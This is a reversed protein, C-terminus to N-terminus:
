PNWGPDAPIHTRPSAIVWIDLGLHDSLHSSVSGGRSFPRRRVRSLDLVFPHEAKPRQVFIFDIRESTGPQKPEGCFKADATECVTEPHTTDGRPKPKKLMPRTHQHWYPWLDILEVSWARKTLEEYVGPTNANINFDGVLMAVHNAQHTDKIYAVVDDVQQLQIELRQAPTLKPFLGALTLQFPDAPDFELIGGGNFLHTSYLEVRWGQGLELVTRLMGKRSWADADRLPDGQFGFEKRQSSVLRGEFAVSMLGSGALDGDAQTGKAVGLARGSAGAQKQVDDQREPEFVECLAAIEYEAGLMTGIEKAREPRGPANGTTYFSATLSPINLQKAIFALALECFKLLIELPDIGLKDLIDEVSLSFRRVIDRASIKGLIDSLSVTGGTLFSIIDDVVDSFKDKLESLSYGFAGPAIGLRAVVEEPDLALDLVLTRPDLGAKEVLRALIIANCLKVEFGHILYTNYWLLRHKTTAPDLHRAALRALSIEAPPGAGEWRHRAALERLSGIPAVEDMFGAIELFSTM